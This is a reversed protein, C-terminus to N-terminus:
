GKRLAESVDELLKNNDLIEVKLFDWPLLSQVGHVNEKQMRCRLVALMGSMRQLDKPVHKYIVQDEPSCTRMVMRVCGLLNGALAAAVPTAYSTGSVNIKTPENPKDAATVNVPVGEGFAYLIPHANRDSPNFPSLDGNGTTSSIGIVSIDRAPWAMHKHASDNCTAAFFLPPRKTILAKDIADRILAIPENFGFGMVIINVKWERTAYTIAETIYKHAQVAMIPDALDCGSRFVKAIHLDAAPAIQLIIQGVRSGHGDSDVNWDVNIEGDKAPVFNKSQQTNIRKEVEYNEQLAGPIQLGTDLVAIKVRATEDVKGLLDEYQGQCKYFLDHVGELYGLWEEAAVQREQQHEDIHDFSGTGSPGTAPPIESGLTNLQVEYATLLAEELPYLIREFIYTRVELDRVSSRDLANGRLEKPDICAMIAQRLGDPVTKCRSTRCTRAWKDMYKLAVVCRDQPEEFDILAGRAIELLVIGLSLIDPFRHPQNLERPVVERAESFLNTTLYPKTIDPVTGYHSALFCINESNLSAQLWPRSYFHMLSTALVFSLILRDKLQISSVLPRGGRQNPQLLDRLSTFQNDRIQPSSLRNIEVDAQLQWLKRAYVVMRPRIGAKVGQIIGCLGDKVERHEAKVDDRNIVAIETDQWELDRSSTPFFVRFRTEYNSFVQGYTRTTDFRQNQTLNLRTKRGNHFEDGPCQCRWNMRVVDFLTKTLKRVHKMPYDSFRIPCQSISSETFSNLDLFFDLAEGLHRLVKGQKEPSKNHLRMIHDVDMLFTEDQSGNEPTARRLARLKPYIENKRCQFGLRRFAPGAEDDNQSLFRSELEKLVRMLNGKVELETTSLEQVTETPDWIVLVANLNSVTLYFRSYFTETSPESNYRDALSREAIAIFVPLVAVVLAYADDTDCDPATDRLGLFSRFDM